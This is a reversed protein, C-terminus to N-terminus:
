LRMLLMRYPKNTYDTNNPYIVFIQDGLRYYISGLGEWSSNKYFIELSLVRTNNQNYGSPYPVTQYFISATTGTIELVESINVGASGLKTTGVVHLRAAPANTGIGVDGTPKITLVAGGGAGTRWVEFNGARGAVGSGVTQIVYNESTTNELFIATRTTSSSSLRLPASADTNALGIGVPGSFHANGEVVLRQAPTTTGIGVNGAATISMRTSNNTGFLLQTNEHNWVYAGTNTIGVMLGDDFNPGTTNNLFNMYVSGSGGHLSLKRSPSQTGIGLHKQINDWFFENDGGFENGSKFQVVGNVAGGPKPSGSRAAYFAYPVSLLQSTGTITYDTGGSPDTETKIFYPGDSWDINSFSGTLVIADEGGIEISVLGNKNTEPTQTETYVVTGDAAGKLITIKMGIEQETVLSGSADRIVAQYSMKQPAQASIVATLLVVALIAYIRKM